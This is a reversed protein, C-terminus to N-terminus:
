TVTGIVEHMVWNSGDYCTVTFSSYRFAVTTGTITRTAGTLTGFGFISGTGVTVTLVQAATCSFSYTLGTAATPLTFQVSGTAGDNTFHTGSDAVTVPYNVTQANETSLYRVNSSFTVAGATLAIDSGDNGTRFRLQTGNLILAPTGAANPGFQLRSFATLANNSFTLVGDSPSTIKSRASFIAANAAPITLDGASVVVSNSFTGLAATFPANTLGDGLTAVLTTSAAARRLGAFASTAGGLALMVADDGAAATTVTVTGDAGSALKARGSWAYTATAPITVGGGTLVLPGILSLPGSSPVAPVILATNAM